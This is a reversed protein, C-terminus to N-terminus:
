APSHLGEPLSPGAEDIPAEDIPAEEMPAQAPLTEPEAAANRPATGPERYIVEVRGQGLPKVQIEPHIQSLRRMMAAFNKHGLWPRV